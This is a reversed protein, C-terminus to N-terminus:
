PTFAAKNTTRTKEAAAKGADAQAKVRAAERAPAERADITVATAEAKRAVAELPVSLIVLGFGGRYPFQQLTISTDGERWRAIIMPADLSDTASRAPASIPATSPPGYVGTLSGIMDKTTLGETRRTDYNIVMKFLQDDIFSFVIGAVSDGQNSDRGSSYPPRWSLEELLAPREHLKQVDRPAAGARGIVAATSAGLRFERYTGPDPAAIALCSFLILWGITVAYTCRPIVM